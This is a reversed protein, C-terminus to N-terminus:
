FVEANGYLIDKVRIFVFGILVEILIVLIAKQIQFSVDPYWRFYSININSIGLINWGLFTEGVLLIGSIIMSSKIDFFINLFAILMSGSLILVIECVTFGLVVHWIKITDSTNGQNYFAFISDPESFNIITNMTDLNAVCVVFTLIISMIIANIVYEIIQILWIRKLRHVRLVQQISYTSELIKFTTFFTMPFIILINM